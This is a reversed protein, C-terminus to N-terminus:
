WEALRCDECVQMHHGYPKLCALCVRRGCIPCRKRDEPPAPRDCSPCRPGDETEPTPRRAIPVPRDHCM